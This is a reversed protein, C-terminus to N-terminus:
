LTSVCWLAGYVVLGLVIVPALLDKRGDVTWFFINWHKLVALGHSIANGRAQQYIEEDRRERGLWYASQMSWGIVISSRADRTFYFAASAFIALLLLGFGIHGFANKM